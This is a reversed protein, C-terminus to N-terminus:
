RVKISKKGSQGTSSDSSRGEPLVTDGTRWVHSSVKPVNGPRVIRCGALALREVFGRYPVVSKMGRVQKWRCFADYIEAVPLNPTDLGQPRGVMNESIYRVVPDSVVNWLRSDRVVRGPRSIGHQEVIRDFARMLLNLVGPLENEIVHRMLEPKAPICNHNQQLERESEAGFRKMLMQVEHPRYFIRTLELGFSRRTWGHSTDNVLPWDNGMMVITLNLRVDFHAGGKAEAQRKQEPNSLNKLTGTDLYGDLSVDDDVLMSRGVLAATAFRSNWTDSIPGVQLCPGGLRELIDMITTKGNGGPGVLAAIIQHEKKPMLGAALLEELFAQTDPDRTFMWGTGKSTPRSAVSCIDALIRCFVPCEADPDYNVTLVHRLYSLPNHDKEIWKGDEYHVEKNLCNFAMKPSRTLGFVDGDVTVKDKILRLADAVVSAKRKDGGKPLETIEAEILKRVVDAHIPKWYVPKTGGEYPSYCWLAGGTNVLHDGKAFHKALVQNAYLDAVDVTPTNDLKWARYTQELIRLPIKLEKALQSLAVNVVMPTRGRLEEFAKFAIAEEPTPEYSPRWMTKIAEEFKRKVNREKHKARWEALAPCTMVLTWCEDQSLRAPGALAVISALVGSGSQDNLGSGDGALRKALQIMSDTPKEMLWRPVPPLTAPFPPPLRTWRYPAFDHDARLSPALAIYGETKIDAGGWKGGPKSEPRELIFHIGGSPTDQRPGGLEDLLPVMVLKQLGDNDSRPDYDAVAFSTIALGINAMPRVDRWLKIRSAEDTADKVGHRVLQTDPNKGGELLPLIQYGVEALRLAEPWVAPDDQGQALESRTIHKNM